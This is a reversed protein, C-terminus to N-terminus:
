ISIRDAISQAKASQLNFNRFDGDFWPRRGTEDSRTIITYLSNKMTKLEEPSMVALSGEAKTGDALKGSM